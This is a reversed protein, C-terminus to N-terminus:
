SRSFGREDWEVPFGAREIATLIAGRDASWPGFYWRLRGRATLFYSPPGSRPQIGIAPWRFRARAPFVAEVEAPTLVMPEVAATHRVLREPRIRLSLTSGAVTLVALPNTANIRGLATPVDAAGTWRLRDGRPLARTDSVRPTLTEGTRRDRQARTPDHLRRGRRVRMRWMVPTAVLAWVAIALGLLSNQGIYLALGLAVGLSAGVVNWLLFRRPVHPIRVPKDAKDQDMLDDEVLSPHPQLSTARYPLAIPVASATFDHSPAWCSRPGEGHLAPLDERDDEREFDVHDSVAAPFTATHDPERSRELEGPGVARRVPEVGFLLRPLPERGHERQPAVRQASKDHGVVCSENSAKITAPCKACLRILSRVLM